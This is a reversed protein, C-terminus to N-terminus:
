PWGVSSCVAGPPLSPTPPPTPHPAGVDGRHDALSREAGSADRTLPAHPDQLASRLHTHVWVEGRTLIVTATESLLLARTLPANASLPVASM